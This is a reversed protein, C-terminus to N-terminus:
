SKRRRRAKKGTLREYRDIIVDCYRPDLEILRASRGLRECAVMVSGSGAFPDLVLDGRKTSNVLAIEILEPPKMTPHLRSAASRPVELVSSQADDGYWGSGGRGIRGTGQKHGYLIAEHRYHYDSHGLVLSDKVWVLSQHLHWDCGLFADTFHRALAGAPHCIYIRAAEALIRDAATFADALLNPLDRPKDGNIKLAEATKGEYDVGYPPDTWLLDAQKSGVLRKLVAPDRADGCLLLHPGLAWLEGPKTKPDELLPPPDDEALDPEPEFEVLLQDLDDQDYGTGDLGDLEGLLAALDASDYGALDNSRNDVLVIRAAQEDNVDVYTVAIEEWGLQKAAELTHNGALVQNNRKNVVIPRYQGHTTLSEAIAAVNGRRPNGPYPTLADPAVAVTLLSASKSQKLSSKMGRLTRGSIRNATQSMGPLVEGAGRSALRLLLNLEQEAALM